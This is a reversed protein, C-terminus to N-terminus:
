GRPRHERIYAKRYESYQTEFMLASNNYHAYERNHYDIQAELYLPYLNEFPSTILLDKDMDEPYSYQKAKNMFETYQKEKIQGNKYQTEISKLYKEDWQFVLRKVMGDLEDIWRLKDEESYSNPKVRDVIEIAKNPTM